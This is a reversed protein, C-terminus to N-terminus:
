LAKYSPSMKFNLMRTDRRDGQHGDIYGPREEQQLAVRTESRYDDM